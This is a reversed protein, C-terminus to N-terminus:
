KMRTVKAVYAQCAALDARLRDARASEGALFGADSRSLEAGTTGNCAARASEPLRVEPRNRLENLVDVYKSNIARKDAQSKTTIANVEEQLKAQAKLAENEQVLLKAQWKAENSDAGLHYVYGELGVIAAILLLGPLVSRLFSILMLPM